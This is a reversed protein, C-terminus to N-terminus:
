RSPRSRGPLDRPPLRLQAEAGSSRFYWPIAKRAAIRGSLPVVYGLAILMAWINSVPSAIQFAHTREGISHLLLFITICLLYTGITYSRTGEPTSMLRMIQNLGLGVFGLYLLLGIAGSECAISLFGNEFHSDDANFGHGLIPAQSWVELGHQIVGSRMDDGRELQGGFRDAIANLQPISRVISAVNSFFLVMLLLAVAVIAISVAKRRRFSIMYYVAVSITLAVIATRSQSITLCYLAPVGIVLRFLRPIFTAMVCILLGFACFLAVSNMNIWGNDKGALRSASQLSIGARGAVLITGVSILATIALAWKCLSRELLSSKAALSLPIAFFCVYTRVMLLILFPLGRDKAGAPDFAMGPIGALTICVIILWVATPLQLGSKGRLGFVTMAACASLVVAMAPGSAESFSSNTAPILLAMVMGLLLVGLTSQLPFAAAFGKTARRASIPPAQFAGAPTSSTQRVAQIM